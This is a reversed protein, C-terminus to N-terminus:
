HKARQKIRPSGDQPVTLNLWCISLSVPIVRERRITPPLWLSSPAQGQCTARRNFPVCHHPPESTEGWQTTDAAWQKWPLMISTMVKLTRKWIVTEYTVSLLLARLILAYFRNFFSMNCSVLCKRSKDCQSLQRFRRNDCNRTAVFLHMAWCRVYIPIWKLM